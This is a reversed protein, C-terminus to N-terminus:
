FYEDTEEDSSWQKEQELLVDSLSKAEIKSKSIPEFNEPTEINDVLKRSLASKYIRCRRTPKIQLPEKKQGPPRKGVPTGFSMPSMEDIFSLSTASKLSKLPTLDLVSSTCSMPDKAKIQNRPKKPKQTLEPSKSKRKPVSKSRNKKLSKKGAHKVKNDKVTNVIKKKNSLESERSEAEKQKELQKIRDSLRRTVPLQPKVGEKGIISDSTVVTTAAKVGLSAM